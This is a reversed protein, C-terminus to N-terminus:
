RREVPPALLRELERPDTTPRKCVFNECVFATPKGDVPNRDALLPIRRAAAQPDGVVGVVIKNPVYTQWVIKLLPDPAPGPVPAVIAIERPRAHYFDVAALMREASFPHDTVRKQFARMLREAEAHWDRRDLLISLRLLNMLMISNGSPIAGDDADKSRVLIHPAHDATFFFGGDREDRFRRMVVETLRAAQDLWRLDFTAEYLNILGEIFFAHDDLFGPTHAIGKRCSRLLGGDAQMHTLVFDAARVASERFRPEGLVCATRAMAAIMLGNWAALIKDDLHPPVRRARVALLRARSAALIRELEAPEIKHLRAVVDLGRPVNLINTGEWNGAETVDYYACFLEGDRPGLENLVEAKSWVYYKGEVGESDADRTSYYGGEPSQLDAIVYDCIERAVRAYLPKRTLQWADLYISTVLAQDYLMKEFHPVLWDVDTSYRAIGGGLQDYIGGHAMHDLTTEICELLERRPRVQGSDDPALSHLYVRLMIDMAMSPPFKNTGGGVIGGKVPDFHKVLAGALAALTAHPILESGPEISAYRRVADALSEAGARVRDRDERWVRAIELLLQKFGPRGYRSEPPFYTGAVFPKLDPTLFVSMPWGGQGQNYLVTAKMYLDDIDPREERDVKISVFHENLVRAIDDSEFSEREMVHCWHCASYGISLFIPKNDRRALALAEDCWPWWDVPNHAHQLLYPSTANVLRNTHRPATTTVTSAKGPQQAQVAPIGALLTMLWPAPCRWPSRPM